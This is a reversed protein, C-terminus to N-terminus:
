SQEKTRRMSVRVRSRDSPITKSLCVTILILCGIDTFGYGSRAQSMLNPWVSSLKWALALGPPNNVMCYGTLYGEQTVVVYVHVSLCIQSYRAQIKGKDILNPRASSLAKM